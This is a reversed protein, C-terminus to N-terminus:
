QKGGAARIAQSKRALEVLLKELEADYAAASMTSKRAKLADIQQQLAEREALLSRVGPDAAKSSAARLLFGRARAGDGDASVELSGKGDGNDDLLAHETALRSNQQYFRAVERKAYEFAELVSVADDKNVDAVDESLARAFYGAFVTEENESSSRTATIVTRGQASLAPVFAGSASTAVVVAVSRGKLPAIMQALEAATIDPGPINFRAEGSQASGHGVLVILVDDGPKASSVLQNFAQTVGAKDSRPTTSEALVTARGGFRRTVADRMLAAARAFQQALRPEGSVGTIILAHTSQASAIPATMAALTTLAFAVRVAIM